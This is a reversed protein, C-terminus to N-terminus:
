AQYLTAIGAIDLDRIEGGTGTDFVTRATDMIPSAAGAHRAADALYGLDKAVLRIPFNPEYDRDGILELVRQLGPSTIPLSALTTISEATDLPSREIFGVIESYAAVQAAFLGNVALKLFAADGADGVRISKRANVDIIPQAAALADPDGGLLYLLAGEEAQPRSGVVPAEILRVGADRAAEHLRRVAGPTLTSSEIAMANPPMSALAGDEVDLWVATAAEDDSVMSVVFDAEAAARRPSVATALGHTTALDSAVEASRNWVTIEHGARAYNVAIRSGMAGLGLVAISSM